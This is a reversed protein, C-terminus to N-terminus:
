YVSDFLASVEEASKEYYPLVELLRAGDLHLKINNERCHDAMQLLESFPPVSGGIERQPLELLLAAFSDDLHSIEEYGVP